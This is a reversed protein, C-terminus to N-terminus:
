TQATTADVPLQGVVPTLSELTHPAKIFGASDVWGNLCEVMSGFERAAEEPTPRQKPDLHM